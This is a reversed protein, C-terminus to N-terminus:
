RDKEQERKSRESCGLLKATRCDRNLFPRAFGYHQDAGMGIVIGIAV